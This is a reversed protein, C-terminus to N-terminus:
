IANFEPSYYLWNLRGFWTVQFSRTKGKLIQIPLSSTGVHNPNSRLDFFASTSGDNQRDEEESASASSDDPAAETQKTENQATEMEIHTVSTTTPEDREEVLEGYLKRTKSM